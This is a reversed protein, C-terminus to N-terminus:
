KREWPTPMKGNRRTAWLRADHEVQAGEVTLLDVAWQWQKTPVNFILHTGTVRRYYVPIKYRGLVGAYSNGTQSVPTRGSKDPKAHRIRIQKGWGYRLMMALGIIRDIWNFKDLLDLM